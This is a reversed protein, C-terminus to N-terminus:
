PQDKTALQSNRTERANEDSRHQGPLDGRAVRSMLIAGYVLLATFTIGYAAWVYGWGGVVYGGTM